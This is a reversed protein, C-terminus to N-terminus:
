KLYDEVSAIRSLNHEILTNVASSFSSVANNGLFSYGTEEKQASDYLLNYQDTYIENMRDSSFSTEIFSELYEHYKAKYDPNLIIYSILPWEDDVESTSLSISQRNGTGSTFAENNDWVIWRLKGMEPDNYLYYNHTMNGYTDWNQITNNVALYKLFGDVDFLAELQEKWAAPDANRDSSQLAAYFEEIDSKDTTHENTKKEFDDLNYGYTSLTAGDGDPKYCNGTNSGFYENLFGEFVVDDMTYLGFYQFTGTGQDVYIEYFATQVAPVGFDRFLDSASKERMLSLDNYGSSLALEKFGYFRQNTIQPTEDEFEDFKLRFPLKGTNASMSSNGKYRVGVEYWQIGNFYFDVPFYLPTQDSFEKMGGPGSQTSGSLVDALDIQMDQWEDETFVMHIQNVKTQDFVIDYNPSIQASHTEANWDELGEGYEIFIEKHCSIMFITFVLCATYILKSNSM